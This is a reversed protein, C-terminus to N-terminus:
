SPPKRLARLVMREKRAMQAADRPGREHDFGLLHLVGHILLRLVEQDLSHRREIAQHQATELSIVIDGLLPGSFRAFRGEQMPFALVDTPRDKRRYKLNLAQMRRDSVLMVGLEAGEAKVLSLLRSATRALMPCDIAVRRQRNQLLVPV